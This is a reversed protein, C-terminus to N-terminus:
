LIKDNNIKTKELSACRNTYAYHSRKPFMIAHLINAAPM